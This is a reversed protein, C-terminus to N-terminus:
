LKSATNKVYNNVGESNGLWCGRCFTLGEYVVPKRIIKNGCLQCQSNLPLEKKKNEEKQQKEELKKKDEEIMLTLREIELQYDAAKRQNEKIRQEILEIYSDKGLLQKIGKILAENWSINNLVAEKHLEAPITTNVSKTTVM